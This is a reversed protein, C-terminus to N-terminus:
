TQAFVHRRSEIVSLYSYQDLRTPLPDWIRTTDMTWELNRM